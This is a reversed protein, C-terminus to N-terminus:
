GFLEIDKNNKITYPWTFLQCEYVTMLHSYYQSVNVLNNEGHDSFLLNPFLSCKYFETKVVTPSYKNPNLNM